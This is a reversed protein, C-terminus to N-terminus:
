WDGDPTLRMTEREVHDAWAEDAADDDIRAQRKADAAEDREYEAREAAAVAAADEAADAEWDLLDAVADAETKGWSIHDDLDYDGRTATWGIYAPATVIPQRAHLERQLLDIVVLDCDKRAEGLITQLFATDIGDFLPNTQAM